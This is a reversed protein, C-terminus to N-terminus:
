TAKAIHITSATSETKVQKPIMKMMYSDSMHFLDKEIWDLEISVLFYEFLIVLRVLVLNPDIDTAHNSGLADQTTAAAEPPITASTTGFEWIARSISTVLKIRHPMPIESADITM